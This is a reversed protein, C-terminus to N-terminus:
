ILNTYVTHVQADTMRELDDKLYPYMHSITDIKAARSM